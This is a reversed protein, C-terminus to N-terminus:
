SYVIEMKEAQGREEPISKDSGYLLVATDILALHSYAQPFNGLLRGSTFDIDESFLKLHNSHSLLKEFMACAREKEGIKFLASIMWFSCLTFSSEPKGFDDDNRYRYMLDNKCLQELTKTVTMVYRPDSADLFGYPEMLLNAADLHESGYYQTFSNIKENWGKEMIDEKIIERTKCWTISFSNKGLFAAIRSARDMAMWCLLKSFTFHQKQSRFEWIGMDPENWSETVTRAISRVITWLSEKTQSDCKFTSLFTLIIDLLVGYIDNQKQSFAANGIRVPSSNEYGCLHTLIRENLDKEGRIGYMIQIKEDKFPVINLIFQMYRKASDIHGMRALVSTTMSADRIWCYRYDWNREAGPTEPLSTTVAALLAGTPQFSLLKLVLLSRMIEDSFATVSFTSRAAWNMWYARTLQYELNIHELDIRPLKENYSLLFFSDNELCIVSSDSIGKLSLNSYLYLSEYNGSASVTKIFDNGVINETKSAGYNLSPNYIIRIRPKGTRLKVYRIIDPPCHYGGDDYRYRPMFDIIDFNGDQTQFSTVLINTNKIYQQRSSLLNMPIIAFHGGSQKDLISAFVSPSDFYPLCLWEITGEKSVLAASLCNGIVGYDLNEM